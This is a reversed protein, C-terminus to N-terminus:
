SALWRIIFIEKLAGALVACGVGTGADYHQVAVWVM